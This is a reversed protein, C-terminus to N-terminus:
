GQPAPDRKPAPNILSLSRHLPGISYVSRGFNRRQMHFAVRPLWVALCCSSGCCVEGCLVSAAAHLALLRVTAASRQAAAGPLQSLWHTWSKAHSERFGMVADSSGWRLRSSSVTGRYFTTLLSRPDAWSRFGSEVRSDGGARGLEDGPGRLLARTLSSSPQRQGAVPAMAAAPQPWHRLGRDAWWGSRSEADAAPRRRVTPCSTQVGSFRM